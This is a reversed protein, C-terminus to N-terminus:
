VADGNEGNESGTVLIFGDGVRAFEAKAEWLTRYIKQAPKANDIILGEETVCVLIEESSLPKGARAIARQAAQRIAWAKSSRRERKRPAFKVPEDVPSRAPESYELLVQRAKRARNVEGRLREIMAEKSSIEETLSRVLPQVDSNSVPIHSDIRKLSQEANAFGTNMKGM